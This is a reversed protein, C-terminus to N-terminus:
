ECPRVRTRGHTTTAPADGALSRTRRPAARGSRRSPGSSPRSSRGPRACRGAASATRTSRRTSCRSTSRPADRRLREIEQELRGLSLAALRADPASAAVPTKVPRTPGPARPRAAKAAAAAAEAHEAAAAERRRQWDSYRGTFPRVRGPGEFVLLRDCTAELLARDHSILLLTGQYGGEISLAQELREASPIDLHNSPEDLVLLNHASAVLGALVARSREGGSVDALTKEQEDGSFLFAGALDRAQQESARAAGDLSVIM